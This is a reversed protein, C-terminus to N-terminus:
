KVNNRVITASLSSICKNVIKRETLLEGFDSRIYQSKPSQFEHGNMFSYRRILISKKQRTVICMYYASHYQIMCIMSIFWVCRFTHAWNWPNYYFGCKEGKRLYCLDFSDIHLHLIFECWRANKSWLIRAVLTNFLTRWGGRRGEYMWETETYERGYTRAPANTHTLASENNSEFERM